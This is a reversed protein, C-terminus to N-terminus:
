IIPLMLMLRSLDYISEGRKMIVSWWRLTLTWGFNHSRRWRRGDRKRVLFEPIVFNTVSTLCTSQMVDFSIRSRWGALFPSPRGTGYHVLWGKRFSFSDDQMLLSPRFAFFFKPQLTQLPVLTSPIEKLLGQPSIPRMMDDHTHAPSTRADYM